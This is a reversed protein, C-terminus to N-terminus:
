QISSFIDRRLGMAYSHKSLKRLLLWDTLIQRVCCTVPTPCPTVGRGASRCSQLFTNRVNTEWEHRIPKVHILGAKLDTSQHLQHFNSVDIVVIFWPKVFGEYGSLQQQQQQKHGHRPGTYPTLASEDNKM